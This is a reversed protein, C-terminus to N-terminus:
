TGEVERTRADIKILAGPADDVDNKKKRQKNRALQSIYSARSNRRSPIAAVDLRDSARFTFRPLHIILPIILAIFRRHCVILDHQLVSALTSNASFLLRM